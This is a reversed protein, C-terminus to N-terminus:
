KTADSGGRDHTGTGGRVPTQWYFWDSRADNGRDRFGAPLWVPGGAQSM